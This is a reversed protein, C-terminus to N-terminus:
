KDHQEPADSEDSSGSSESSESTHNYTNHVSRSPIGFYRAEPHSILNMYGRTTIYALSMGGGGHLGASAPREMAVHLKKTYRSCVFCQLAKARIDKRMNSCKQRMEDVGPVNEETLIYPAGPQKVTPVLGFRGDDEERIVCVIFKNCGSFARHQRHAESELARITSSAMSFTNRERNATPRQEVIMGSMCPICENYLPTDSLSVDWYDTDPAVLFNTATDVFRMAYDTLSWVTDLRPEDRSSADAESSSRKRSPEM